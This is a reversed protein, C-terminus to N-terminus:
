EMGRLKLQLEHPISNWMERAWGLQWLMAGSDSPDLYPSDNFDEGNHFARRGEEIMEQALMSIAM